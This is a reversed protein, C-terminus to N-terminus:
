ESNARKSNFRGTLQDYEPNAPDESYNKCEFFLFPCPINYNRRLDDFFGEQAGNNFTIDVRKRGEHLKEEKQPFRLAPYFIAELTGFIFNHFAAAHQAGPPIADLNNELKAYDPERYEAQATELDQDSQPRSTASAKEKYSTLVEPHKQSFAFLFEKNLPYKEKLDKRLVRRRGNKLTQVLSTNARLHEAELFSLVFENYFGSATIAPRFRM